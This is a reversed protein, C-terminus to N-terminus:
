RHQVRYEVSYSSSGDSLARQITHHVSECDDPHVLQMWWQPSPEVEAPAIGLLDFLNAFREISNTSADGEFIVGHTADTVLRFREESRRLAETLRLVEDSRADDSRTSAGAHASAEPTSQPNSDVSVHSM